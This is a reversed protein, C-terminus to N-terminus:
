RAPDRELQQMLATYEGRHEWRGVMANYELRKVMADVAVLMGIFAAVAGFFMIVAWPSATQNGFEDTHPIKSAHIMYSIFIPVLAAAILAMTVQARISKRPNTETPKPADM